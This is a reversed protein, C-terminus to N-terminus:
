GGAPPILMNEALEERSLFPALDELASTVMSGDELRRSSLKPAFAQRKDLMVETLSPSPEALTAAIMEGMHAHSAIRRTSFGFAEGLRAFDPFTLGSAPGCGVENDPFYNEQTQRISHYGDNNLVFLKIPLKGGIVSQLEQLNMMLSGDGAICVIRQRGGAAYCAGIAAPLDYGMSAAGSNSFLRQGQKLEAAQFTVV